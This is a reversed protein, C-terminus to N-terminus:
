DRFIHCGDCGDYTSYDYELDNAYSDYDFYNSTDHIEDAHTRAFSKFSDYCGAYEDTFNSDGIDDYRLHYAEGHKEIGEAYEGYDDLNDFDAPNKYDTDYATVSIDTVEWDEPHENCDIDDLEEALGDGHERVEYGLGNSFCDFTATKVITEDKRTLTFKVTLDSLYTTM